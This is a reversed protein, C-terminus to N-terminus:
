RITEDVQRSPTAMRLPNDFPSTRGLVRGTIWGWVTLMTVFSVVVLGFAAVFALWRPQPDLWPNAVQDIINGLVIAITNAEFNRWTIAWWVSEEPRVAWHKVTWDAVIRDLILRYMPFMLVIAVGQWPPLGFITRGPAVWNVIVVSGVLVGVTHPLTRWALYWGTALAARSFLPFPPLPLKWSAVVRM